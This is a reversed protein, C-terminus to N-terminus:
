RQVALFSVESIALDATLDPNAFGEGAYIDVVELVVKSTLGFDFTIEQADSTDLLTLMQSSQDTGIVVSRLRHNAEYIEANKAYGNVFRVAKLDVPESFRFTLTEGRGDAERSDSNWATSPDGDITNGPDYTIADAPPLYSTAVVTIRENDVVEAAGTPVVFTAVDDGPTAQGQGDDDLISLVVLAAGLAVATVIGFTLTPLLLRSRRTM